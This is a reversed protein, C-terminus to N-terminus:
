IFLGIVTQINQLTYGGGYGLTHKIKFDNFQNEINFLIDHESKIKNDHEAKVVYLGANSIKNKDIYTELNQEDYRYLINITEDNDVLQFYEGDFSCSYGDTAAIVKILLKEIVNTHNALLYFVSMTITILLLILWVFIHIIYNDLNFKIKDLARSLSM